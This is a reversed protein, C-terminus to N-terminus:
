YLGVFAARSRLVIRDSGWGNSPDTRETRERWIAGVFRQPEEDTGEFTGVAQVSHGVISGRLHLEPQWDRSAGKLVVDFHSRSVTVEADGQFTTWGESSIPSPEVLVWHCMHEDAFARPALALLICASWACRSSSM